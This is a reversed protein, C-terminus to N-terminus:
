GTRFTGIQTEEEDYLPMDWGDPYARDREEQWKLAQEPSAPQGPHDPSFMALDAARAYGIIQTGDFATGGAPVLDPAFGQSETGYTHGHSNIGLLTPVEQLYQLTVLGQAGSSLRAHVAEPHGSLDHDYFAPANLDQSQADAATCAMGPNNGDADIGVSFSGATLCSVSVRLHTAPAPVQTLPLETSGTLRQTVPDGVLTEIPMGPMHGPPAQIAGEPGLEASSTDVTAWPDTAAFAAASVGAGAAAGALILGAQSVRRRTRSAARARDVLAARIAASREPTFTM